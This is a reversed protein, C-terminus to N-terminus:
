LQFIIFWYIINILYNGINIKKIVKYVLNKMYVNQGSNNLKYIHHKYKYKM